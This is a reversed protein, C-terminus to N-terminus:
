AFPDPSRLSRRPPPIPRVHRAPSKQLLFVLHCLPDRSTVSTVGSPSYDAFATTTVVTAGDRDPWGVGLTVQLPRSRRVKGHVDPPGIGTWEYVQIMVMATMSPRSM